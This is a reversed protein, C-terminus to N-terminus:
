TTSKLRFINVDLRSSQLPLFDLYFRSLALYFTTKDNLSFQQLSKIIILILLPLFTLLIHISLQAYEVYMIMQSILTRAKPFIEESESLKSLRLKTRIEHTPNPRKCFVLDSGNVVLLFDWAVFDGM